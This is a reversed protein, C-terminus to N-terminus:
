PRSYPWFRRWFPRNEAEERRRKEEALLRAEAHQLEEERRHEQEPAGQAEAQQLEEQQRREQAPAGQVEAKRGRPSRRASSRRVFQAGREQSTEADRNRNFEQFKHKM